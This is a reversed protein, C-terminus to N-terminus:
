KITEEKFNTMKKKKNAGFDVVSVESINLDYLRRKAMDPRWFYSIIKQVGM